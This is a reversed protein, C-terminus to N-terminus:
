KKEGSELNLSTAAAVACGLLGPQEARVSAIPLSACFKHFRGKSEVRGRFRKLDFFMWMKPLMGGTLYIGGGAGFAIALDGVASGLIAYFDAIAQVCLNDGAVARAVIEPATLELELGRLTANAWYLNALGEGSLLREISVRDYREWLCNLLGIEHDDAPAFAIHGGESPMIDGNPLIAAVGFGTGPGAVLKVKGEHSIPQPRPEGIWFLEMPALARISLAQATFDNIIKVPAGVTKQLATAEFVWANNTLKIPGVHVPAAVALCLGGIRTIKQQEVYACIVDDLCPYDECLFNRVGQLTHSGADVFALRANTGGIDAILQIPKPMSFERAMNLM